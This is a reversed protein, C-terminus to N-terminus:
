SGGPLPGAPCPVWGLAPPQLLLSLSPFSPRSERLAAPVYDPSARTVSVGFSSQLSLGGGLSHVSVLAM